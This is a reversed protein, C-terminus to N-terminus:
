SHWCYISEAERLQIETVKVSLVEVEVSEKRGEPVQLIRESNVAWWPTERGRLSKNGNIQNCWRRGSFDGPHWMSPLKLGSNRLSVHM